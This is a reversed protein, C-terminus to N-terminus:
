SPVKWGIKALAADVFHMDVMDTYDLKKPDTIGPVMEYTVFAELSKVDIYPSRFLVSSNRKWVKAWFAAEMKPYMIQHAVEGAKEPEEVIYRLARVDATVISQYLGPDKRVDATRAEIGHGPLEKFGSIEGAAASFLIVAGFKEIATDSFPVISVIADVSSNALAALAADPGGVPVIQADSNPNFGADILVRRALIDQSSGPASIGIRIGKFKKAAARRGELPAGAVVGINAAYVRTLVFDLPHSMSNAMLMQLKQGRTAAIILEGPVAYCVEGAGTLIASLAAPGTGMYLRETTLGEDAYYNLAEAVYTPAWPLLPSNGPM